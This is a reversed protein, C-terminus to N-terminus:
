ADSHVEVVKVEEAVAAHGEEYGTRSLVGGGVVQIAAM